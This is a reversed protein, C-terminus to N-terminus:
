FMLFSGSPSHIFYQVEYEGHSVHDIVRSIGEPHSPLSKETGCEAESQKPKRKVTDTGGEGWVCVEGSGAVVCRAGQGWGM